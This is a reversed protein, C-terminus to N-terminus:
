RGAVIEVIAGIPIELPGATLVPGTSGYRVGDVRGTSFTQTPVTSGKSDLVEIEFTYIGAPLGDAADGVSVSQRGGNLMGLSRAGVENGNSDYIRLTGVGGTGGTVFNVTVDGADEAPMVVQNGIAVVERGIAALASNGNLADVMAAQTGAQAAMAQNLNMLQEVSTFQALQVALEEGKMPSLPDQHKLQAILLKLFEDKGLTGGPGPMNLASTPAGNGAAVNAIV